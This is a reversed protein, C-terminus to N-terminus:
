GEIAYKGDKRMRFSLPNKAIMPASVERGKSAEGQREADYSLGTTRSMMSTALLLGFAAVIELLLSPLLDVSLKVDQMNVGPMLRSLLTAQPDTDREAGARLLADVSLRLEERLARLRWVENAGALEGQLGFYEECFDRSAMATADTCGNSTAFRKDTKAAQIAAEVLGLPRVAQLLGLQREIEALEGRARRYQLTIAERGQSVSAHSTAYFGVASIVSMAGCFIFTIGGLGLLLWQRRAWWVALGIPLGAKVCDFVGMAAARMVAEAPTAGQGFQYTANMSMTVAIAGLSAIFVVIGVVTRMAQGAAQM